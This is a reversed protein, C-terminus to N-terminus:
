VLRLVSMLAGVVCVAMGDQHWTGHALAGTHLFRAGNRYIVVSAHMHVAMRCSTEFNRNTVSRCQARVHVTTPM